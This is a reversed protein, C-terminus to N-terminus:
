ANKKVGDHHNKMQRKVFMESWERWMERCEADDRKIQPLGEAMAVLRIMFLADGLTIASLECAEDLDFGDRCLTLLAIFRSAIPFAISDTM